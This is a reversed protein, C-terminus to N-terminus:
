AKPFGAAAEASLYRLVRTPTYPDPRPEELQEVETEWVPVRAREDVPLMRHRHDVTQTGWCRVTNDALVGGDGRAGSILDGNEYLLDLCRM